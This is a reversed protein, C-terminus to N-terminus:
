TNKILYETPAERGGVKEPVKELNEIVTEVKKIAKTLENIKMQSNKREEGNTLGARNAEENGKTNELEEKTDRAAKLTVIIDGSPTAGRQKISHINTGLESLKTHIKELKEIEDKSKGIPAKKNEEHWKTTIEKVANATYKGSEKIAKVQNESILKVIGEIDSAKLTALQTGSFNEARNALITRETQLDSWSKGERRATKLMHTDIQGREQVLNEREAQQEPTMTIGGGAAILDDYEKIKKNIEGLRKDTEEIKYQNLAVYRAGDRAADINKTNEGRFKLEGEKDKSYKTYSRAGLVSSDAVAGVKKQVRYGIWGALSGKPANAWRTNALINNLGVAGRGVSQQYAFGATARAGLRGLGLVHGQAWGTVKKAAGAGIVGVKDAAQMAIYLMAVVFGMRVAVNAINAALYAIGGSDGQSMRGLDSFLGAILGGDANFTNMFVAIFLFIFLFVVPYFTHKILMEQWRNYYTETPTITKALFALPSVIILFWLVVVRFLFKVGAALLM